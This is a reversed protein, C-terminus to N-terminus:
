RHKETQNENKLLSSDPLEVNRLTVPVKREHLGVAIEFRMAAIKREDGFGGGGIGGVSNAWNGAPHTQNELPKGSADIMYRTTILRDPLPQGQRVQGDFFPHDNREDPAMEYNYTGHNQAARVFHTRIGPLITVPKGNAVYPVDIQEMRDYSLVMLNGEVLDLRKPMHPNVNISFYLPQPQLQEIWKKTRQDFQTYYMLPSYRPLDPSNSALQATVDHGADDTIRTVHLANQGIGLVNNTDRVTVACQISLVESNGPQNTARNAPNVRTITLQASQWDIAFKQAFQENSTATTAPESPVQSPTNGSSVVPQALPEHLSQAIAHTIVVGGTGVMVFAVAAATALKIKLLTMAKLTGKALGIPGATNLPLTSAATAMATLGATATSPATCLGVAALTGAIAAPATVIGKRKLHYGLQTVAREIRRQVTSANVRQVKGIQELTQNNFYRLIIAERDNGNLTQLAADLHELIAAQSEDAPPTVEPRAARREHRRRVSQRRLADIAAYNLVRYLWAALSQRQGISGAKRALVIFTAQTVDEAVDASRVRRRATAYVWGAHRNVIEEFAAHSGSSAYQEVLDWDDLEPM